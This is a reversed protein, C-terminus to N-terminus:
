TDMVVPLHKCSPRSVVCACPRHYDVSRRVFLHERARQRESIDHVDSSSDLPLSASSWSFRRSAAVTQTTRLSPTPYRDVRAPPRQWLHCSPSRYTSPAQSRRRLSRRPGQLTERRWVRRVHCWCLLSSAAPIYLRSYIHITYMQINNNCGLYFLCLSVITITCLGIYPRFYISPLHFSIWM